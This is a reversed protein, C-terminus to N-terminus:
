HGLLFNVLIFDDFKQERFEVFIPWAREIRSFDHVQELLILNIKIPLSYFGHKLAVLESELFEFGDDATVFIQM